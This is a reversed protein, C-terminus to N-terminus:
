SVNAPDEKMAHMHACHEELNGLTARVCDCFEKLVDDVAMPEHAHQPSLKHHMAAVMALMSTNIMFDPTEGDFAQTIFVGLTLSRIRDIKSLKGYFIPPVAEHM